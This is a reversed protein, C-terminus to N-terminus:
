SSPSAVVRVIHQTIRLQDAPRLECFRVGIADREADCPAVHRVEVTVPIPEVAAGLRMWGSARRGRRDLGAARHIHLRAGSNSLDVLEAPPAAAPQTFAISYGPHSELQLRPVVRRESREIRRPRALRVRDRTSRGIVRTSFVHRQEGKLYYEVAVEEDTWASHASTRQDIFTIEGFGDALDFRGPVRLEGSRLVVPVGDLAAFMLHADIEGPTRLADAPTTAEDLM